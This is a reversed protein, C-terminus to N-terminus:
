KNQQDHTLAIEEYEKLQQELAELRQRTRALVKTQTEFEERTVVDMKGLSEKVLASLNFRLDQGMGELEAPLRESILDIIRNVLNEQRNM